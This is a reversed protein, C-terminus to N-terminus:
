LSLPFRLRVRLRRFTNAHINDSLLIIRLKQNEVQFIMVTLAPHVFSGPLLEADFLKNSQNLLQWNDEADLLVAKGNLPFYHWFYEYFFRAASLFILIVFLWKAIFLETTLLVFLGLIHVTMLVLFVTKSHMLPIQIPLLFGSQPKKMDKSDM